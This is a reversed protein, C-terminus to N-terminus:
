QPEGQTPTVTRKLINEVDGDPHQAIYISMSNSTTVLGTQHPLYRANVQAMLEDSYEFEEPSVYNTGYGRTIQITGGSDGRYMSVVINGRVRQWTREINIPNPTRTM